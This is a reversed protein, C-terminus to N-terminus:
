RYSVSTPANRSLSQYMVNGSLSRANPAADPSPQAATIVLRRKKRVNSELPDILVAEVSADSFCRELALTMMETGYGKGLNQGFRQDYTELLKDALQLWREAERTGGLAQALMATGAQAM